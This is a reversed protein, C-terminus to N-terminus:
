NQKETKIKDHVDSTYRLNSLRLALWKMFGSKPKQNQLLQLKATDTNMNENAVLLTSM